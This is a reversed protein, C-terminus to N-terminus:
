FPITFPLKNTKIFKSYSKVLDIILEELQDVTLQNILSKENRNKYSRETILIIKFTLLEDYNNVLNKIREQTQYDLFNYKKITEQHQNLREKLKMIKEEKSLRDNLRKDRTKFKVLDEFSQQLKKIEAEKDKQPLFFFNLNMDDDKFFVLDGNENKFSFSDLDM